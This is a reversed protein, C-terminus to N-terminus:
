DQHERVGAMLMGLVGWALLGLMFTAFISRLRRPETAVDPTSPQAIRELYVQQRLAENRASELSVLASALQKEALDRDIALRQYDTAKNVLSKQSGNINANEKQIEARMVKARNQLAPIQPNAPTFAKLQALQTTTALLDDQMKTIQQLQATAQREPDIVGNKNRYATLKLGAEKAKAAAQSVETTAFKIMDQRGRANIKNVLAESLELLKLNANVADQATFARTTLTSISSTSDTQVLIKKQYYRHLAEFSNDRDISGFRSFLDVDPSAYAKGIGLEDNLSKLADRSLIYDQVTYADGPNSSFGAGKLVLGLPSAAQKEPSRVVYRSESIYVDSAMFGFYVVALATPAVVTLWFLGNFTHAKNKLKQIM